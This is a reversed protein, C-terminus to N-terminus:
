EFDPDQSVLVCQVELAPRWGPSERVQVDLQRDQEVQIFQGPCGVVVKESKRDQGVKKKRGKTM